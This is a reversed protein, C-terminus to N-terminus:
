VHPTASEPPRGMDRPDREGGGGRPDRIDGGNSSCCPIAHPDDAVCAPNPDCQNCCTGSTPDCAPNSDCQGGQAFVQTLPFSLTLISFTFLVFTLQKIKKM